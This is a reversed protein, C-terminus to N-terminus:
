RAEEGIVKYFLFSGAWMSAVGVAIICTAVLRASGASLSRVRSDRFAFVTAVVAWMGGLLDSPKDVFRSLLYTIVCYSILCAIALDVAYAIDWSSLRATKMEPM